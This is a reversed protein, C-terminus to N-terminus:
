EDDDLEAVKRYFPHTNDEVLLGNKRLGFEILGGRTYGSFQPAPLPKKSKRFAYKGLRKRSSLITWHGCAHEMAERKSILWPNPSRAGKEPLYGYILRVVGDPTAVEWFRVRRLDIDLAEIEPAFEKTVAVITKDMGVQNTVGWLDFVTARNVRFPTWKPPKDVIEIVGPEDTDSDPDVDEDDLINDRELREYEDLAARDEKSLQPEPLGTGNGGSGPLDTETRSGVVVGVESDTNLQGNGTRRTM